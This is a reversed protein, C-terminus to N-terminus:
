RREVRVRCTVAGYESGPTVGFGATEQAVVDIQFAPEVLDYGIGVTDGIWLTVDYIGPNLHLQDISLVM